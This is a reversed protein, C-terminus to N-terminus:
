IASEKFNYTEKASYLRKELARTCFLGIIKLLRSITAVGYYLQTAQQSKLFDVPSEYETAEFYTRSLSLLSYFFHSFHFPSFSLSVSFSIPFFPFFLFFSLSLSLGTALLSVSNTKGQLIEWYGPTYKNYTASKAAICICM